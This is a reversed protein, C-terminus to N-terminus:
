PSMRANVLMVSSGPAVIVQPAAQACLPATVNSSLVIENHLRKVPVAPGPPTIRPGVPNGSKVDRSGRPAEALSKETAVPSSLAIALPTVTGSANKFRARRDGDARAFASVCSEPTAAAPTAGVPISAILENRDSTVLGNASRPKGGCVGGGSM